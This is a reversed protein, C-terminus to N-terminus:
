GSQKKDIFDFWVVRMSKLIRGIRYDPTATEFTRNTMGDVRPTHGFSAIFGRALNFVM